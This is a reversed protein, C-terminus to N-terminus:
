PETDYPLLPPPPPQHPLNPNEPSHSLDQPPLSLSNQPSKIHLSNTCVAGNGSGKRKLAETKPLGLHTSGSCKETKQKKKHYNLKVRRDEQKPNVLDMDYM